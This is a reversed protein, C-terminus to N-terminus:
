LLDSFDKKLYGGGLRALNLQRPYLESTLDRPM